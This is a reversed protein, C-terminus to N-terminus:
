EAEAVEDAENKAISTYHFHTLESTLFDDMLLKIFLDKSVKTDLRIQDESENFRIRGKLEPFAKCFAIIEENAIGARLVPSSRAVKTLKRAYRVEDIMERLMDVSELISIEEIAEIGAEAERKIIDHFGFTREVAALDIVILEGAIQMLQFGPSIRMFDDEIRKLRHEAKRLFYSAQGFINVPAITKYLVVQQDDNGIEILLARVRSLENDSFDFLPLDDSETVATMAKLEDPVDLDYVFAANSRDDSSSFDILSLEDNNSIRTRLSEIFLDKLSPRSDSDIDLKKPEFNEDGKLIAYIAIGSQDAHDYIAQLHARLEDETM